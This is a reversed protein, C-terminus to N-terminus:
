RAGGIVGLKNLGTRLQRALEDSSADVSGPLARIVVDAPSEIDSLVGACIHRLRRAVRHRIVASGVAKSVILGFRPAAAGLEPAELEAARDYGYVVLYRRGVRRGRRVARTFDDHRHLRNPESLM